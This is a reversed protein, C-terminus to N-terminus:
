PQEENEFWGDSLEEGLVLRENRVLVKEQEENGVVMTDGVLGLENEAM